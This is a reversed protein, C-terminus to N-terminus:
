KGRLSQNGCNVVRGAERLRDVIRSGVRAKFTEADTNSTIVVRKAEGHRSDVLRELRALAHDHLAEGGLEDLVLLGTAQMREFWLRDAEGFSSL